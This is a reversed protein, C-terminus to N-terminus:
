TNARKVYFWVWSGIVGALAGLPGTIFIGLLPGQAQGSDLAIPGFFGVLFGIFGLGLTLGFMTLSYQGFTPGTRKKLVFRWILLPIYAVFAFICVAVLTPTLLDIAGM